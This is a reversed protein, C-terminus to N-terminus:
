HVEMCLQGEDHLLRDYEDRVLHYCECAAVELGPRDLIVISGRSHQIFGAQQLANATLTVSPRGVGLMSGLEEHTVVIWNSDGRDSRILLWSAIRQRLVHHLSCAATQAVGNLFVQTYRLLLDRLPGSRSVEQYLLAARMRYASGPTQVQTYYPTSNVGLLVALGAMGDKGVMGLETSSGDELISVISLVTSIPFYVFHITDGPLSIPQKRKLQVIQMLPRLQELEAMPLVALLRNDDLRTLNDFTPASM